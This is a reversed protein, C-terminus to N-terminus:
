AAPACDWLRRFASRAQLGFADLQGACHVIRRVEQPGIERGAAADLRDKWFQLPEPLPAGTHVWGALEARARPPALEGLATVAAITGKLDIPAAALYLQLASEAAPALGATEARLEAAVLLGITELLLARPLPAAQTARRLSDLLLALREAEGATLRGLVEASLAARVGRVLATLVEVPEASGDRGAEAEDPAGTPLGAGLLRQVLQNAADRGGMQGIAWAAEARLTPSGAQQLLHVLALLPDLDQSAVNRLTLGLGSLEEALLGLATVAQLAGDPDRQHDYAAAVHRQVAANDPLPWLAQARRGEDMVDCRRAVRELVCREAEDLLLCRDGPCFAPDRKAQRIWRLDEEDGRESLWWQTARLTDADESALLILRREAREAQANLEHWQRSIQPWGGNSSLRAEKGLAQTLGRLRASIKLEFAARNRPDLCEGVKQTIQRALASPLQLIHIPFRQETAADQKGQLRLSEGADQLISALSEKGAALVNFGFQWARDPAFTAGSEATVYGVAEALAAPGAASALEGGDAACM